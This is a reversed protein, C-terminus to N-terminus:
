RVTITTADRPRGPVALYAGIEHEGADAVVWRTRDGVDGYRKFRGSWERRVVKRERGDFAFTNSADGEYRPEDSAELEGDVTWGWLRRGPTSVTIPVPLRNAFVVTFSVPEGQAYTVRDTSISVAISRQAIAQPVVRGAITGLPNSREDLGFRDGDVSPDDPM